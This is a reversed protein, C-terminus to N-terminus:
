GILKEEVLYSIGKDIISYAIPGGVRLHDHVFRMDILHKIEHTLVTPKLSVIGALSHENVPSQGNDKAGALERLITIQNKTLVTPSHSRSAHHEVGDSGHTQLALATKIEEGFESFSIKPQKSYGFIRSIASFFQKGFDPTNIDLAQFASLPQPLATVTLGSHCIPIIPIQRIWACGAEFSIWPRDVSASSYLSILLGSTELANDIKDLWKEGASIDVPDSSVFVSVQGLYTSEIWDKLVAALGAEESIHSIFIQV